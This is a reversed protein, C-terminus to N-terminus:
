VACAGSPCDNVSAQVSDLYKKADNIPLPRLPSKGRSGDRYITLGKLRTIYKRMIASLEEVPYDEPLNITKSISNDVHKQCAVQMLCHREPSIEHAAEFHEISRGQLIFERVLPHVVVDNGQEREEDHMQSHKNFSREFVPAFMPEVGGSVGAVISTTGTPAITLLCCNRIGHQLIMKRLRPTLSERAFGTKVHMERDLAPFPGKEVALIISAEYARKKIFEMVEGVKDLAEDSSYRLGLKLLMDHLGMVGVGIRRYKRCTEEIERFPYHNRDLVNDLFRVAVLMTDDLADWDIEGSEMDVHAALNVAGLDCADFPSLWQEGCPNTAVLATRYSITNMRNAYGINLVGPEGNRWSNAVIKEWIDRARMRGREEGLWRFVVEGDEDLLGFFADDVMVSINANCLRGQELKATLFEPLDPHDYRLAFMLASRRGGGERLENCVANVAHMLSVAGTAEGGTGRIKSGRPRVRSYSIGVGGGTGSIITVHALTQAWGERSDIEDAIVFCNMLQGRPRGAGRWIWGGPSFRNTLMVSLFKEAWEERKIGEEVGAVCGAVRRCAQEFTEEPHIAYRDRFITLALDTPTYLEM